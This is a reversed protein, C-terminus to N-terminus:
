SEGSDQLHSFKNVKFADYLTEDQAPTSLIQFLYIMGPPMKRIGSGKYHIRCQFHQEIDTDLM